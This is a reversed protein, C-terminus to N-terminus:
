SSSPPASLKKIRERVQDLFLAQPHERLIKQYIELAVAPQNLQESYLDASLKLALPAYYSHPYKAIFQQLVQLCNNWEKQWLYIKAEELCALEALSGNSKKLQNIRDLALQFNGRFVLWQSQAYQSLSSSDLTVNSAIIRMRELADNALTSKLSRKTIQDYYSEASDFKETYFFLEGLKFWLQEQIETGPNQRQLKKYYVLASDDKELALYSDAIGLAAPQVLRPFTQREALKQYYSKAAQFDKKQFSIEGALLLGKVIDKESPSASLIQELVELAPDLKEEREYIDVLTFLADLRYGSQPYKQLVLKAGGEATELRNRAVCERVFSLILEGEAELIKDLVQYNELAKQYEGSELFVEGLLRYALFDKPLERIKKQLFKELFPLEEKKAILNKVLMETEPARNQDEQYYNFYEELSKEIQKQSEYIQGLEKAFLYPSDSERRAQLYIEIAKQPQNNALFVSAIKVYIVTKDSALSLAKHLSKEAEETRGLSLQVQGLEALLLCDDPSRVLWDVILREEEQYLKLQEYSEKLLDFVRRNEPNERYLETLVKSAESYNGMAFYRQAVNFKQILDRDTQALALNASLCFSIFLPCSLRLNM